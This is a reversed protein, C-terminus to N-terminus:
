RCYSPGSACGLERDGALESVGCDRFPAPPPAGDAFAFLLLYIADSTDIAGDGNTNQAAICEPTAREGYLSDLICVADNVDTRRDANCDGRVFPGVGVPAEAVNIRQVECSAFPCEDSTGVAVLLDWTGIPLTITVQGAALPGFEDTQGTVPNRVRYLFLAEVDAPVTASVAVSYRGPANGPPGIIQVGECSIAEAPPCDPGCCSPLEDFAVFWEGDDLNLWGINEGWVHGRLRRTRCDVRAREGGKDRTDFNIWGLNEGWALGFLNCDADINVGFDEGTANKFHRGDAPRGAGLNIWGVNEGWAFGSLFTSDVSVGDAADNADRWNIWGVNEGWCFRDDADINSQGYAPAAASLLFLLLAGKASFM